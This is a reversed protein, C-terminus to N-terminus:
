TYIKNIHLSVDYICMYMHMHMCLNRIYFCMATNEITTGSHNKDLYVKLYQKGKLKGTITIIKLNITKSSLM